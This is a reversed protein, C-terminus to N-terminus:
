GKLNAVQKRLNEWDAKVAALVDQTFINFSTINESSLLVNFNSDLTEWANMLANVETSIAGAISFYMSTANMASQTASLDRYAQEAMNQAQAMQRQQDGIQGTLVEILEEIAKAFPSLFGMSDLIAQKKAREQELQRIRQQADSARSIAVSHAASAQQQDSKFNRSDTNVASDFINIIPQINSVKTVTQKNVVQLKALQTKFDEIAKSDDSGIEKAAALLANYQSDFTSSFDSIGDLAGVLAPQINTNWNNGNNKASTIHAGLNPTILSSTASLKELLSVGNSIATIASVTKPVSKTLQAPPNILTNTSM